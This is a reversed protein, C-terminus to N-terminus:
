EIAEDAAAVDVQRDQRRRGLDEVAVAGVAVLGAVDLAELRQQVLAADGIGEVPRGEGGGRVAQQAALRRRLAAVAAEDGLAQGPFAADRDDV